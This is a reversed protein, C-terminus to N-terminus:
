FELYYTVRNSYCNPSPGFSIVGVYKRNSHSYKLGTKVAGTAVGCENRIALLGSVM